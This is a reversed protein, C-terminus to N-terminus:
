FEDTPYLLIIYNDYYRVLEFTIKYTGPQTLTVLPESLNPNWSDNQKIAQIVPVNSELWIYQQSRGQIQYILAIEHNKSQMFQHEDSEISSDYFQLLHISTPLTITTTLKSSPQQSSAFIERASTSQSLLELKSKLKLLQQHMTDEEMTLHVTNMGVVIMLAICSLISISMILRIPLHDIANNDMAHM